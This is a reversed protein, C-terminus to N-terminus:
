ALGWHSLMKATLIGLLKPKTKEKVSDELRAVSVIAKPHFM